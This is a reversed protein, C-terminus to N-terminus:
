EWVDVRLFGWVLAFLGCNAYIRPGIPATAVEAAFRERLFTVSGEDAM